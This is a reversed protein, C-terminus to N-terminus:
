KHNDALSTEALKAFSREKLFYSAGRALITVRLNHLYVPELEPVEHYNTQSVEDADIIFVGGSGIARMINGESIVVGSDICLGIGILGPNRLLAETLRPFRSRQMFHTDIVADPLFSFGKETEMMGKILSEGGKGEKIALRAMAMAGASTGAIVFDDNQYREQIRQILQTDLLKEILQDQSGGTFLVGDAKAIRNLNEARDADEYSDIQLVHVNKCGLQHFAKLYEKGMEDPIESAAPIIEIRSDPGKVEQLFESLIGSEFFHSQRLESSSENDGQDKAESGGIPILKGKPTIRKDIM